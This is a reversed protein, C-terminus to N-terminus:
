GHIKSVLRCTLRPKKTRGNGRHGKGRQAFGDGCSLPYRLSARSTALVHGLALFYSRM